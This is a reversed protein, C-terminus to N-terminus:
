GRPDDAIRLANLWVTTMTEAVDDIELPEGLVLTFYALRSCMSSLAWSTLLPDLRRDAVGAAQLSRILEANREAFARSRNRRLDAFMPDLTAVQELLMMLRANRQYAVLYARNGAAIMARVDGEPVHPLGPHLMDDQVSELVAVLAEEKNDFYTYFTGVACGAEAAIDTLRSHIFGDREFVARAASVLAARTRIGRRTVPPEKVTWPEVVSRAGLM